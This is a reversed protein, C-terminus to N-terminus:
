NNGRGVFWQYCIVGAAVAVNLNPMGDRAVPATRDADIPRHSAPKPTWVDAMPIRLSASCSAVIGDSLGDYENGLVVVDGHEFQFAPLPVASSDISTAIVRRPRSGSLDGLGSIIQYGKRQLAGCAFDSITRQREGDALVDGSGLIAVSVGYTEALRLIMGINIPSRLEHLLLTLAPTGTKIATDDTMLKGNCCPESM